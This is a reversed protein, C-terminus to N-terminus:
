CGAKYRDNCSFDEGAATNSEGEQSKAETKSKGSEM